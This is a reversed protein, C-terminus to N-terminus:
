PDPPRPWKCRAGAHAPRSDARVRRRAGRRAAEGEGAAAADDSRQLFLVTKPACSARPVAAMLSLLWPPLTVELEDIMSAQSLPPPSRRHLSCLTHALPQQM